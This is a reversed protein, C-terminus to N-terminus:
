RGMTGLSTELGTHQTFVDQLQDNYIGNAHSIEKVEFKRIRNFSMDYTDMSNLRIKVYNVSKANRGIKFMITMNKDDRVFQKAGTMMIFKNGGLQQLIIGAWRGDTKPKPNRKVVGDKTIHKQNNLKTM